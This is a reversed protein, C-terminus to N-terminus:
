SRGMSGVSGSALSSLGSPSSASRHQSGLSQKDSLDSLNQHASSKLFRAGLMGVFFAGGLFLLPERKAFSQVSGVIDDVTANQLFESARQIEDAARGVLPSALNDGLEESTHKLAKAVNSIEVVSRKTQQAIQDAVKEKAQDAVHLVAETAHKALANPTEVASTGKRSTSEENNSASM